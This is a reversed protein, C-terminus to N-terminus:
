FEFVFDKTEESKISEIHPASSELRVNAEKTSVLLTFHAAKKMYEERKEVKIVFHLSEINDETFTIYGDTSLEGDGKNDETWKEGNKVQLALENCPGIM